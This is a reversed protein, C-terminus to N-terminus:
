FDPYMRGPNLIGAPDFAEKLRRHIKALGPSLPHFVAAAKVGARFLNAHGGARAAAERIVKADADSRLWRLAGSWEILQPGSLDLPPTTSKVSLRWLPQDGAFFPARQERIDNWFRTAQDADMAEGGIKKVAADVASPAGSLRVSLSRARYATASVPLPKGAWENMLVIAQDPAVALRLTAEAVQAPLVKLSVELIVGLTGLAGVTLRSVDYGAVNKMVEGGFRLEAGKGDMIRVGLVFDRVAGAYARRPGSLGTAVCGGLTALKEEPAVPALALGGESAPFPAAPPPFYDFHPPEFPLLQGNERLAGEIETLPTGARATIVLETPEYSVIGRLSKTDLVDGRREGGYFDKTGGGRICLARKRAAAERIVEALHAVPDSM